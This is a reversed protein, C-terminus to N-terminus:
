QEEQAIIRELQALERQLAPVSGLISQIEVLRTKARAILEEATLTPTSVPPYFPWQGLM